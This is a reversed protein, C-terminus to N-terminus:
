MNQIALIPQRLATQMLNQQKRSSFFTTQNLLHLKLVQKAGPLYIALRKQPMQVLTAHLGYCVVLSDYIWMNM